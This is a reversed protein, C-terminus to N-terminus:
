IASNKPMASNRPLVVPPRMHQASYWAAAANQCSECLLALVQAARSPYSCRVAHPAPPHPPPPPHQQSCFCTAPLPILVQAASADASSLRAGQSRLWAAVELHGGLCAQMTLRLRLITPRSPLPEGGWDSSGMTALQPRVFVAM